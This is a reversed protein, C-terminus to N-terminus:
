FQPLDNLSEIVKTNVNKIEEKLIEDRKTRDYRIFEQTEPDLVVRTLEKEQEWSYKGAEVKEWDNFVTIWKKVDGKKEDIFTYTKLTIKGIKELSALKNILGRGVKNFAISFRLELEWDKLEMVFLEKKKGEYEYSSLEVGILTGDITNCQEKDKGVAFYAEKDEKKLGLLNVFTKNKLANEENRYWM